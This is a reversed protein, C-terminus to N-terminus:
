RYDENWINWADYPLRIDDKSSEELTSTSFFLIRTNATLSMFGNYHGAPIRLVKPSQESLVIKKLQCLDGPNADLPVLGVIASGSAVWVYKEEKKHGHWARIFGARHNQVQYFRKVNQFQFGNAFRVSGRDDVSVGGDILLLEM